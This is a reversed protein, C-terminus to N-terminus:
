SCTHTNSRCGNPRKVASETYHAYCKMPLTTKEKGIQINRRRKLKQRLITIGFRMFSERINRVIRILHIM